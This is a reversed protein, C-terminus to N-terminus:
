QEVLSVALDDRWDEWQRRLVTPLDGTLAADLSAVQGADLALAPRARGVAQAFAQGRRAWTPAERLYREVYPALLEGQELSWLGSMLAAFRRNDVDPHAAAAWAEEKAQATPRAALAATAGLEADVGPERVRQAEILGADAAGTEALRCVARWRVAPSLPLDGIAGADLWGRLTEADRSTAALGSAFALAFAPSCAHMLGTGCASALTDVARAASGAPVRLPLVRDLTRSLVASVLTASREGPLHRGVLEVFDEPDLVRTQVEDFLMTWLVARTLDDDIRCLGDAVADRSGPDLVVRAFTEGHSNAVVVRGAFAPLPVPTDGVDVLESGVETWAEDYATVRLRHPRIGDRHVVPTTGDRVVRVTDFGTTRLWLRVWARVDRDSAEDLATVFDELTANAFRHRTLYTNVGRLFTEDGLWTVLQRLVSNGKAYSISDFITAAADVDPVDEPDPAVPHTSRREDADYAAPKRAAEHGLLAGPVGAGDAAVRYGLYDAFSEQLWSDEWWTMTVLDGFWMHSMEHAIVAARLVRLDEPVAGRPLLEDRYTV